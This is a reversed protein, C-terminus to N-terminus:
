YGTSVGIDAVRSCDLYWVSSIGELKRKAHGALIRVVVVAVLLLATCLVFRSIVQLKRKPHGALIRLVVVAVLLLATCLVFRSIVQLKRKPHGALIRVVVVRALSSYHHLTSSYTMLLTLYGLIYDGKNM